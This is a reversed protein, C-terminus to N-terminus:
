CGPLRRTSTRVQRNTGALQRSIHTRVPKYGRWAGGGVSHHSKHLRCRTAAHQLTNCRTVTHYLTTCRTTHTAAHQLTNCHTAAHQLTNFTLVFPLIGEGREWGLLTTARTYDAAHQLTNCHTAIYQLTTSTLVFSTHGRWAGVGVSCNSKHLRYRITNDQLVNCRIAAHQLTNCRTASHHVHTRVPTHGLSRLGGGVV